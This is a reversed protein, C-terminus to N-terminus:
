SELTVTAGREELRDRIVDLPMRRDIWPSLASRLRSKIESRGGAFSLRPACPAADGAPAGHLRLYEAFNVANEDVNLLTECPAGEAYIVDHSELKIHFFELEDWEDADHLAITTGNILDGAPVLVDDIFVAHWRTVYLDAQPVNRALASRKIRVPLVDKVWPKSPDSRKYSYRGIWQIPRLEGFVTPLLDGIALDEVKRNGDAARIRTGKLFCVAVALASEPKMVRALLAALGISGIKLVNRRACQVKDTMVSGGVLGVLPM